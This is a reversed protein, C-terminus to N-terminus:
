TPPSIRIVEDVEEEEEQAGVKKMGAEEEEEQAGVKKTGAEEETACVDETM